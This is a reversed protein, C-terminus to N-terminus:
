PCPQGAAKAAECVVHQITEGAETGTGSIYFDVIGAPLGTHENALVNPYPKVVLYENSLPVTSWTGGQQSMTYNGTVTPPCTAAPTFMALYNVTLTSNFTGGTPGTVTLTMSGTSAPSAALTISVTCAGFTGEMNLAEIQIPIKVSADDGVAGTPFNAQKKRRVITDTNGEKPIPKGTLPITIPGIPLNLTVQTGKTTQLYDSGEAVGTIPAQAGAVGCLGAAAAILRIAAGTTSFRKRM